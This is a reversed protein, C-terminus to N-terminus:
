KRIVDIIGQIIGPNPYGEGGQGEKASAYHHPIRGAYIETIVIDTTLWVLLVAAIILFIKKVIGKKKRNNKDKMGM